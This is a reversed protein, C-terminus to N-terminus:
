LVYMILYKVSSPRRRRAHLFVGKLRGTQKRILVTVIVIRGTTTAAAHWASRADVKPKLHIWIMGLIILRGGNKRRLRRRQIQFGIQIIQLHSQLILM